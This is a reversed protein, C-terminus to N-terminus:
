LSSKCVQYQSGYTDARNKVKQAVNLLWAKSQHSQRSYGGWGEHYNLYQSYADWKSVGNIKQSKDMYWGMFDVADSFDSRSAM